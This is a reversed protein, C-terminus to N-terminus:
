HVAIVTGVSPKFASVVDLRVNAFDVQKGGGGPNYAHLVVTLNTGSVSSGSMNTVTAHGWTNKDPYAWNRVSNTWDGVGASLAMDYSALTEGWAVEFSLIYTTNPQIKAALVQTLSRDAGGIHMNNLYAVQGTTGPVINGALQVGYDAHGGGNISSVTWGEPGVNDTYTPPGANPLAFDANVITIPAAMAQHQALVCFAALSLAAAMITRM